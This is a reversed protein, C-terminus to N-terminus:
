ELEAIEKKHKEVAKRVARRIKKRKSLEMLGALGGKRFASELKKILKRTKM